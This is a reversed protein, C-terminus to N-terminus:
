IYEMDEEVDDDCCLWPRNVSKLSRHEWIFLRLM